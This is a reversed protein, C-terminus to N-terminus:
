FLSHQTARELASTLQRQRDDQAHLASSLQRALTAAEACSPTHLFVFPDKGERHWRLLVTAWHALADDALSTDKPSIFRVMPRDATAVAHTPVRPKKALAERSDPDDAPHAFLTRTDFVTRNVGADALMRNFRREDEGKNFFAPHRVEVAYHFDKPLQALYHELAGLNGPGFRPGLQLWLVGIRSALPSLRDLFEATESACHQLEAEHSIARPFKFCFQFHAPTVERWHTVTDARPLGYFTTNGEVTDFHRSYHALADGSRPTFPWDAHFWQPLGLTIPSREHM